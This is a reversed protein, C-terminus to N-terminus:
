RYEKAEEENIKKLIIGPNGAVVSNDPIDHTVVTNAGVIVHNGIHIDGCIKAGAYVVVEDGLTPFKGKTQGLTVGQYVICNNGIVCGIGIVTNLPHPVQLGTGIIADTSLVCNFKYYIIREVLKQLWVMKKEKARNGIRLWACVKDEPNGPLVFCKFFLWIITKNTIRKYWHFYDRYISKNNM